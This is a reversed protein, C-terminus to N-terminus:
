WYKLVFHAIVYIVTAWFALWILFFVCGTGVAAREVLKETRRYDRPVRPFDSM